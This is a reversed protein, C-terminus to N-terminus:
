QSDESEVIKQYFARIEPTLWPWHESLEKLALEKKRSCIKLCVNVKGCPKLYKETIPEVIGNILCVDMDAERIQCHAECDFVRMIEVMQGDKEIYNRWCFIPENLGNPLVRRQSIIEKGFVPMNVEEIITINPSIVNMRLACNEMKM